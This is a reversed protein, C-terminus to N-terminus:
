KSRGSGVSGDLVAVSRLAKRETRSFGRRKAVAPAQAPLLSPETWDDRRKRLRKPPASDRDAEALRPM